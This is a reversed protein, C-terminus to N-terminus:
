WPAQFQKKVENKLEKVQQRFLSLWRQKTTKSLLQLVLGLFLVFVLEAYGIFSTNGDSGLYQQLFTFHLGDGSAFLYIGGMISYLIYLTNSHVSIGVICIALYQNAIASSFIVLSLSYLYFSDLPKKDRLLLGLLIMTGMFLVFVPIKHSIITPFIDLWFPANSFSRYLFVHKIIEDSAEIAYPLFSGLFLSYPILLTLLKDRWRTNKVALWFPFLFLIHKISLSLGLLALGSLSLQSDNKEISKVALLGILIALNEFQSHYGTIIIAIPNLFFLAAIKLGYWRYLCTAIAIDCGTLFLSVKWRLSFLPDSIPFPLSDLLSLLHFWIPGYNYRQTEAYVNGGNAAIDAVIRFSVIDFNYGRHAALLRLASGIILLLIFWSLATKRQSDAFFWNFLNNM